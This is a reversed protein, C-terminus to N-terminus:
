SLACMLVVQASGKGFCFHWSGVHFILTPCGIRSFAGRPMESAFGQKEKRDCRIQDGLKDSHRACALHEASLQCSFQAFSPAGCLTM